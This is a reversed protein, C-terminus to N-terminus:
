SEALWKMASRWCGAHVWGRLRRDRVHVDQPRIPRPLRTVRSRGRRIYSGCWPCTGDYRAPAGRLPLDAVKRASRLAKSPKRPTSM